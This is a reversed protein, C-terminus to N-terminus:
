IEIEEIEEESIVEAITVIKETKDLKMLRVGQTSRGMISIGGVELRIVIGQNNIMMVEEDKRCVKIGVLDGTKSTIKYTQIGKGGRNQIRYEDAKTVKGYGNESVTLVYLEDDILDMGIVEDDDRLFIGRVGIATRGVARVDNESFRIAYGKKTGMIMEKSGDTLEVAILEDEDNLNIALLGSKRSSDYEKLDTKKIIGKRTAMTLYWNESFERIPIVTTVKEDDELQLINVIATGRATRSADPIEYAKLRYVKGKNTFFLIYHHTTTTFLHEVFDNDRTSLATIGKGGRKQATYTDASIRKVYGVHTMTIVLDEEEILDEMSIDDYDVEFATRRDDGFKEKIELMEEKVVNLILEESSLIRKLETIKIMLENHETEIKERELGTLRQLRMDLIAQAQKESLAFEKILATKAEEGNKSGRIIQIVRDINDLAIILGELIHARDEAKKLDFQTRRIIIEKQHEIYKVLIEKLNMIKPQNKDLALLIVGFTEQLQTHKYLQNLIIEANVDRKLDIAIRIGNRDSEDRIDSIGEVKKEKVLDAIKEVLKSKNVMYPIETIVIRQKSSSIEETNVKARVKIRGRGTEYASKIGEKGLIIGGTPFDPGKLHRMLEEIHCEPNEIQHVTADIVENLNHPPINTAMGVAIGSSGNVLLNPYRSPLVIPEKQTEDFNLTFDVTDKNIDKLLETSIKSMKAETYRMAAASDGDISGFNGHGYVLPYRTSFEQAMRVMADYVATDGHPHYKGLVDGVIRASKRFPKEPTMGLENMAFLIRRHVPKLGDRVDPLARGVIVSMAYDIYSKKMEDEINIPLVKNYDDSM